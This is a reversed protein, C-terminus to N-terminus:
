VDRPSISEESQEPQKQEYPETSPSTALPSGVLTGESAKRFNSVVSSMTIIRKGAERFLNEPEGTAGRQKLLQKNLVTLGRAGHISAGTMTLAGNSAGWRLQV